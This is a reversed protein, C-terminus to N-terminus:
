IVNYVYILTYMNYTSLRISHITSCDMSLYPHSLHKIWITLLKVQLWHNPLPGMTRKNGALDFFHRWIMWIQGYKVISGISKPGGLKPFGLIHTVYPYSRCLGRGTRFGVIEVPSRLLGWGRGVSALALTNSHCSLRFGVPLLLVCLFRISIRCHINQVLALSIGCKESTWSAWSKPGLGQPGQPETQTPRPARCSEAPVWTRPSPKRLLITSKVMLCITTEEFPRVGLTDMNKEMLVMWKPYWWKHFGGYTSQQIDTFTWYFLHCTM